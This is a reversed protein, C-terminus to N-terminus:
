VPFKGIKTFNSDETRKSQHLSPFAPVRLRTPPKAFFNERTKFRVM